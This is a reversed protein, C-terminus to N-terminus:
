TLELDLTLTHKVNYEYLLFLAYYFNRYAPDINRDVFGSQPLGLLFSAFDNGALADERLPDAQTWNKAFTYQGTSAGPQLFNQNYRRVEAGLKLTQKGQVWSM